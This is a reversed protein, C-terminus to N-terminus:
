PTESISLWREMSANFSAMKRARLFAVQQGFVRHAFLQALHQLAALASCGPPSLNVPFNISRRACSPKM